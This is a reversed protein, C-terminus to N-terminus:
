RPATADRAGDLQSQFPLNRGPRGHERWGALYVTRAAPEANGAQTRLQLRFLRVIYNGEGGATRVTSEDGVPVASWDIRVRDVEVEGQPQLMPNITRAYELGTLEGFLTQQERDLRGLRDATQSIWGFLIVAGTSFIAMAALVEILSFGRGRRAKRSACATM